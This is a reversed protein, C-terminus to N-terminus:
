HQPTCRFCPPAGGAACRTQECVGLPGEGLVCQVGAEECVSVPGDAVFDGGCAAFVLGLGGLAVSQVVCRKM